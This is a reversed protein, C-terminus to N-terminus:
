RRRYNKPLADLSLVARTARDSKEVARFRRGDALNGRAQDDERDARVRAALM